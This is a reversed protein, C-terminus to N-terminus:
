SKQINEETNRRDCNTVMRYEDVRIKKSGHIRWIVKREFLRPDEDGKTLYM